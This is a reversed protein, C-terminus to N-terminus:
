LLFMFVYINTPFGSYGNTLNTLIEVILNKREITIQFTYYTVIIYLAILRDKLIAQIPLNTVQM